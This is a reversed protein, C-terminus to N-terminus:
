ALVGRQQLARRTDRVGDVVVADIGCALAAAVNDARDDVFVIDAVDHGLATLQAVAATFYAPQPKMAGLLFSPSLSVPPTPLSSLSPSLVRWHIPDTNSWIAVDAVAAVDTILQLGGASFSVMAAWAREVVDVALGLDEAAAAIFADGSLAGITLRDHRDAEDNEDRRFFARAVVDPPGLAALALKHVDVVVGGLDFAVVRRRAPRDSM